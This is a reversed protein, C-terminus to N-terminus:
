IDDIIFSTVTNLQMDTTILTTQFAIDVTEFANPIESYLIFGSSPGKVPGKEIVQIQGITGNSLGAVKAIEKRTNIKKIAKASNPLLTKGPATQGHALNKKAKERWIDELKLAM